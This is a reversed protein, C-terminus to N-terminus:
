KPVTVPTLQYVVKWVFTIYGISTLMLLKKVSEQSTIIFTMVIDVFPQIAVKALRVNLQSLIELGLVGKLEIGDM